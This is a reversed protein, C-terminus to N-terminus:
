GQASESRRSPENVIPRQVQARGRGCGKSVMSRAKRGARTLRARASVVQEIEHTSVIM